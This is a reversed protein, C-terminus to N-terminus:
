ACLVLFVRAICGSLDCGHVAAVLSIKWMGLYPRRERERGAGRAGACAARGSSVIFSTPEAFVSRASTPVCTLSQPVVLRSASVATSGAPWEISIPGDPPVYSTAGITPPFWDVAAQRIRALTLM